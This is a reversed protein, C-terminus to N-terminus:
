SPPPHFRANFCSNQCVESRLSPSRPHLHTAGQSLVQPHLRTMSRSDNAPKFLGMYGHLTM